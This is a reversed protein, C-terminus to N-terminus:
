WLNNILITESPNYISIFRELEDYTTPNNVYIEKFQFINTKGTYIDINAVGVVLYKGKMLIKNEVLDIWICTTSNTLNTSENHFYTGPSFVGALSRTTNKVAEDQAYVVATFGADQIKKIYKEIQMDKFGAMM